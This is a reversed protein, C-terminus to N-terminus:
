VLKKQIFGMLALAFIALTSPESVPLPPPTTVTPIKFSATLLAYRAGTPSTINEVLGEFNLGVEDGAVIDVLTANGSMLFLNQEWSIVNYEVTLSLFLATIGGEFDWFDEITFSAGSTSINGFTYIVSDKFLGIMDGFINKILGPAQLSINSDGQQHVVAGSQIDFGGEILTSIIGASAFRSSMMLTFIIVLLMNKM